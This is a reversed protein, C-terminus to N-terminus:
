KGGLSDLYCPVVGSDNEKKPIKKQYNPKNFQSIRLGIGGDVLLPM